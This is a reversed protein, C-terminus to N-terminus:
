DYEYVCSLPLGQAIKVRGQSAAEALLCAKHQMIMKISHVPDIVDSKRM